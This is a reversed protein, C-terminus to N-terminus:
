RHAPQSPDAQSQRPPFHDPVFTAREPERHLGQAAAPSLPRREGPPSQNPTEHTANRWPPTSPTEHPRSYLTATTPSRASADGGAKTAAYGVPTSRLSTWGSRM